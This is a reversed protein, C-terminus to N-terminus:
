TTTFPTPLEVPPFQVPCEWSLFPSLGVYKTTIIVRNYRYLLWGLQIPKLGM